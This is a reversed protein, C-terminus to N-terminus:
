FLKWITTLILLSIFAQFILINWRTILKREELNAIHNSIMEAWKKRMEAKTM